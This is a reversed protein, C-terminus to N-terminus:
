VPQQEESGQSVPTQPSSLSLRVAEVFIKFLGLVLFVTEREVLVGGVDRGDVLDVGVVVDLPDLLDVDVEVDGEVIEASESVEVDSGGREGDAGADEVSWGSVLVLLRGGTPAITPAIKPPSARRARRAARRHNYKCFFGLSFILILRLLCFSSLFLSFSSRSASAAM